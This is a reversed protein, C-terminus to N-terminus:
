PLSEPVPGDTSHAFAQRRAQALGTLRAIVAPQALLTSADDPLRQQWNPHVAVTGPLNPQEVVGLVDELPALVLAAPTQGVFALASALPPAPDGDPQDATFGAASLASHLAQKDAVREHHSRAAAHVDPGFLGLRERWALDRGCWWGALTPLDHTSTTAMANAPWRRPPMFHAGERQFWLVRIGLVGCDALRDSFGDPVTGLDEGIVIAQHRVSELATLRLMDDLPFHLYAGNSSPEGEPVLWLRM